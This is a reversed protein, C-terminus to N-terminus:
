EAVEALLEAIEKEVAKLEADIEALPRPPVYQYFYRNFNIEYGVLGIQGDRADRKDPNIWADAVHPLVDTEFYDTIGHDLPVRETDALDGDREYTIVKGDVPYFGFREHAHQKGTVDKDIVPAAEPNTETVWARIAKLRAATLKEGQAKAHKQMAGAFANYDVWKSQGQDRLSRILGILTRREAHEDPDLLGKLLKKCRKSAGTVEAKAANEDARLLALGEQEEIHETVEPKIAKLRQDCDEGFTEAMWLFYADLESANRFRGPATESLDVDLRLPRDIFIKRYGFDEPAFVKVTEHEDFGLYLNAVQEIDADTLERRKSGLSKRMPSWRASADILRVKGRDEAAKRNTVIWVYTAIGTNYFLDTPLAIIADVMDGEMLFRRIESEGGGADGNFLPSGNMIVAIRGPRDKPLKSIMHLLFLLQGDSKRPIGAAFRGDDGAEHETKVAEYEEGYDVGYPPNCLCYTFSQDDFQDRNLTNGIKINDPSHGTLLMDSRCIAFSEPNIEQGFLGVRLNANRQQLYDNATALMGGTGCAPDLINIASAESALKEGDKAFLLSTMLRIVERPTYHDGATANSAENFRRILNEFLYGMEMTSVREPHLDKDAFFKVMAYLLNQKELRDIWNFFDFHEIFVNRMNKSLGNIYAKLNEQVNEPDALLASLTFDSLGYFALSTKRTIIKARAEETANDLGAILAQISKIHPELLCDMRRLVTFPLIVKGYDAPKIKGRLKEAAGWILNANDQLRAARDHTVVAQTM